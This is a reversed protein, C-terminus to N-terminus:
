LHAAAAYWDGARECEDAAQRHWSLRAAPLPALDNPQEARLQLWLTKLADTDLPVMGGTEDIRQGSLWQALRLLHEVPRGDSSLDWGREESPARLAQRVWGTQPLLPTLSEGTAADWLRAAGDQSATLVARGDPS